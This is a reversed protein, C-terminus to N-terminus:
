LPGIFRIIILKTNPKKIIINIFKLIYNLDVSFFWRYKWDMLFLNLVWLHIFKRLCLVLIHECFQLLHAHKIQCRWSPKEKEMAVALNSNFPSISFLKIYINIIIVLGLNSLCAFVICFIFFVNLGVTSYKQFVFASSITIVLTVSIVIVFLYEVVQKAQMFFIVTIDRIATILKNWFKPFM